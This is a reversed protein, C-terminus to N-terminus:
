LAQLGEGESEKNFDASAERLVLIQPMRAKFFRLYNWREKKLCIKCGKFKWDYNKEIKKKKLM